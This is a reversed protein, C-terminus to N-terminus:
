RSPAARTSKSSRAALPARWRWSEEAPYAIGDFGAMVAYADTILKHRGPPRICGLQVPALQIRNRAAVFVKAVDDTSVTAFPKDASAYIPTVVVLVLAAVCHRAVMDLLHQEGVLRGYHLGIVIHPVVEM